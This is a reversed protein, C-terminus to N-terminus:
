RRAEHVARAQAPEGTDEIANHRVCEALVSPALNADTLLM